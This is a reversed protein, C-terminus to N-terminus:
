ISIDSACIRLSLCLFSSRLDPMKESLKLYIDLKSIIRKGRMKPDVDCYANNDNKSHGNNYGFDNQFPSNKCSLSNINGFGMGLYM